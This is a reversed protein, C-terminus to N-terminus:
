SPSGALLRSPAFPVRQGRRQRPRRTRILDVRDLIDVASGDELGAEKLLEQMRARGLWDDCESLGFLAQRPGHAAGVDLFTALSVALESVAQEHMGKNTLILGINGLEIAMGVEHRTECVLARADEHFGLAKDLDRWYCYINGINSLSNAMGLKDGVGRSVALANEHFELAKDLEGRDRHVNGINGLGGAVGSNDGIVRSIELAEEYCELATDLEGRDRYINGVNGLYPAATRQDGSKRVIALAEGLQEFASGLEGRDHCIVGTNALAPAKGKEDGCRRALRVSEEFDRLADDTRGRMYHCVGTQNYLPVVQAVNAKEQADRFHEIAEDWRCAAMAALGLEAPQWVAPDSEPLGGIYEAMRDLDRRIVDLRTRVGKPRLKRLEQRRKRLASIALAAVVGLVLVVVSLAAVDLHQRLLTGV